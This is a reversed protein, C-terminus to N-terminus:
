NVCLNIASKRSCNYRSMRAGSPCSDSLVSQKVGWFCKWCYHTHPINSLDQFLSFSLMMGEYGLFVTSFFRPSFFFLALKCVPNHHTWFYSIGSPSSISNNLALVALSYVALSFARFLAFSPSRQIRLVLFLDTITSGTETSHADCIVQM